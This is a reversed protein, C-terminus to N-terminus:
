SHQIRIKKRWSMLRSESLSPMAIRGVVDDASGLWVRLDGRCDDLGTELWDELGPELCDVREVGRPECDFVVMSSIM